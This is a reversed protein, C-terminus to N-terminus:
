AIAARQRDLLITAAIALVMVAAGLTAALGYGSAWTGLAFVVAALGDAAIRQLAILSSGAGARQGLLDQLYAIALAYIFAGGIGAPLVLLWVYPGPALVPLLVLFVAYTLAGFAILHLRRFWNLFYGVTLTAIVEFVVFLAFFQGVDGTGRGPVQELCLGLLVGGLATGSHIAGVLFVRILVPLAMLESLSARFGLGSRTEKWHAVKDSPWYRLILLVLALGWLSIGPYIAWLPLGADVAWGWLPLVLVFPIAFIARVTAMIADRDKPSFESAALRAVAFLQGFLSGSLPLFVLHAVVFAAPSRSVGVLAGGAVIAAAAWLAMMRRSPRQDTIIGVGISASVSVLVGVVMIASYAADSIGFLRIAILSQYPGISAVHSGFLLFAAAIMSLTPNALILRFPRAIHDLM